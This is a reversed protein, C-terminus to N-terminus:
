HNENKFVVVVSEESDYTKVIFRFSGSEKNNESM